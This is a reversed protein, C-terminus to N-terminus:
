MGDGSWPGRSRSRVPLTSIVPAEDHEHYNTATGGWKVWEDTTYWNILEGDSRIIWDIDTEAVFHGHKVGAPRFCYTGEDIDGFNYAMKGGLTYFEEYCPHHALRHDSWGKHARILRTYFNTVPDRHLLKIYLPTIPGVTPAATWEMDNSDVVTVEGVATEWRASAPSWQAKGVDFGCDGYERWHLVSSGERIKIWDMPVGRPVQLYGGPGIEQGGYILSGSRVFFETDAHPVGPGRGWDSDFRLALSSSGDEEDTSLRREHVGGEGHPLEGVHWIYDNEHILEVHARM